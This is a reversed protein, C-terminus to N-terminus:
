QLKLWLFAGKQKNKCFAYTQRSIDTVECLDNSISVNLPM